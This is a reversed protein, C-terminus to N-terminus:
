QNYQLHYHCCFGDGWRWYGLYRMTPCVQNSELNGFNGGMGVAVCLSLKQLLLREQTPTPIPQSVPANVAKDNIFVPVQPRAALVKGKVPDTGAPARGGTRFRPAATCGAAQMRRGVSLSYRRSDGVLKKRASSYPLM